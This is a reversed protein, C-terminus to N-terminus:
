PSLGKVSLYIKETLAYSVGGPQLETPPSYFVGLEDVRIWVTLKRINTL